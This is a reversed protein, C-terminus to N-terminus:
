FNLQELAHQCPEKERNIFIIICVTCPFVLISRLMSELQASHLASAKGWHEFVEGFVSTFAVISWDAGTLCRRLSPLRKGGGHPHERARPKGQSSACAM